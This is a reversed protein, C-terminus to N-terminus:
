SAVTITDTKSAQLDTIEAQPINVTATCTYQGGDSTRLPSFTYVVSSNNEESIVPSNSTVIMLDPMVVLHEVVIASCELSYKQGATSDGSLSISVVPAPLAPPFVM